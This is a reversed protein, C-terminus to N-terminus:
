YEYNTFSHEKAKDKREEGGVTQEKVTNAKYM